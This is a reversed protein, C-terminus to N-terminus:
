GRMRQRTGGRKHLFRWTLASSSALVVALVAVPVYNPAAAPIDFAIIGSGQDTEPARDFYVAYADGSQLIFSEYGTEIMLLLSTPRMGWAPINVPIIFTISSNGVRYKAPSANDDLTNGRIHSTLLVSTWNAGKQLIVSADDLTASEGTQFHCTYFYDSSVDMADSPGESPLLDYFGVTVLVRDSPGDYDVTVNRIDLFSKKIGLGTVTTFDDKADELSVRVAEGHPLSATLVYLIVLLAIVSHKTSHLM